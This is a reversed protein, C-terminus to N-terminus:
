TTTSSGLAIASSGCLSTPNSTLPLKIETLKARIEAIGSRIDNAIDRTVRLLYTLQLGAGELQAMVRDANSLSKDVNKLTNKIENTPIGLM